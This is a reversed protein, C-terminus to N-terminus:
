RTVITAGRSTETISTVDNYMKKSNVVQTGTSSETEVQPSNNTVVIVNTGEGTTELDRIAAPLGFSKDRTKFDTWTGWSGSVYTRVQHKHRFPLIIELRTSSIALITGGVETTAVPITLVNSQDQASRIQWSTCAPTTTIITAETEVKGVESHIPNDQNDFTFAM